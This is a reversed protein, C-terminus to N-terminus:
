HSVPHSLSDMWWNDISHLIKTKFNLTNKHSGVLFEYCFKLVIETSNYITILNINYECVDWDTCKCQTNRKRPVNGSSFVFRACFSCRLCVRTKFDRVCMKLSIPSKNTIHLHGIIQETRFTVYNNAAPIVSLITKCYKHSQPLSKLKWLHM